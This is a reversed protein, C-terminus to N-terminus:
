TSKRADLSVTVVSINFSCLFFAATIVALSSVLIVFFSFARDNLSFALAFRSRSSACICCFNSFDTCFIPRVSRLFFSGITISSEDSSSSDPDPLSSEPLSSSSSSSLSSELLSSESSRIGSSESSSLGKGSLGVTKSVADAAAWGVPFPLPDVPLPRPM